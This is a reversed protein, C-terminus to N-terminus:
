RLSHMIQDDPTDSEESSGHLRRDRVAVVHMAGVHREQAGGGIRSCAIRLQAAFLATVDGPTCAAQAQFHRGVLSGLHRTDVSTLKVAAPHPM